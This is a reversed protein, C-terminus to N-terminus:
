GFYQPYTRRLEPLEDDLKGFHAALLAAAQEEDGAQISRLLFAHEEVLREAHKFQKLSLYRIRNLHGRMHNVVQLLTTNGTVELISRHFSEDLQLFLALDDSRVAALQQELLQECRQRYPEHAQANWRRAALRFAGLELHERVFRTEQVKQESILAIQTGRQPLVELLQESALMRIAERIPTRSVGLQESLENEYIYTGPALRISVIGERISEYVQEGLTRRQAAPLPSLYSM